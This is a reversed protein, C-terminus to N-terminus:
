HLRRLLEALMAAGDGLDLEGAAMAQAMTPGELRELVMEAGRAQHV